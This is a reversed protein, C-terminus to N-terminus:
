DHYDEKCPLIFSIRAGKKYESSIQLGECGYYLRIRQNVNFLGFGGDDLIRNLSFREQLAEIKDPTMGIGNDEVWFTMTNDSNKRGGVHIHGRGRKSKIGHYIANEVLPQLLLKLMYYGKLEEEITIEYTLISEYRVSQISLYSRVHQEEQGVTIYDLGRSLSIRFFDTFAMTIDVVEKNRQNEALWVISEFTNYVFHPTIQAQLARMKAKQLDQQAVIREDILEQLKVVMDNLSKALSKLEDVQPAAARAELHGGAIRATTEELNRISTYISGQVNRYSSVAFCLVLLLLVAVLMSIGAVAIQINRNQRAVETIEEHVYKELVDYMLEAVSVIERYIAENYTVAADDEIQDGLQDLYNELTENARRAAFIYQMASQSRSTLTELSEKTYSILEYQKGQTFPLKGSIIDWVEETLQVKVIKQLAAASDIRGVSSNYQFTMVLITFLLIVTPIAMITIIVQYSQKLMEWISNKHQLINRWSPIM